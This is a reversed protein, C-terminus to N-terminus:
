RLSRLETIAALHHDDHEAVFLALDVVSMPKRLRPHEATAAIEAETMASIGAVLRERRSRFETLIEGVPRANHEADWTARNRLDAERLEEAGAALDEVRGLWLDELDALHGAHEQISWGGDAPAILEAETLGSIREELRGPTGRLREILDPLAGPPLGLDVGARVM